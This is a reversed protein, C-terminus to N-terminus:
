IITEKWFFLNRNSFELLRCNSTSFNVICMKFAGWLHPIGSNFSLYVWTIGLGRFAVLSDHMTIKGKCFRCSTFIMLKNDKTDNNLNM